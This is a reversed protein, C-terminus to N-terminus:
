GVEAIGIETHGAAKMRALLDTAIARLEPRREFIFRTTKGLELLRAGEESLRLTICPPM